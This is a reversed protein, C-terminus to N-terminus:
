GDEAIRRGANTKRRRETDRHRQPECKGAIERLKGCHCEAKMAAFKPFNRCIAAFQAELPFTMGIKAIRIGLADLDERGIRLDRLAQMLDYYSKGATLIGLRANEGAGPERTTNRRTAKRSESRSGSRRSM